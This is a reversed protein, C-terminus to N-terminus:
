RGAAGQQVSRSKAKKNRALEIRLWAMDDAVQQPPQTEGLELAAKARKCAEEIQVKEDESSAFLALVNVAEPGIEVYGGMVVYAATGEQIHVLIEGAGLAAMLRVHGPYIGLQGDVTPLEVLTADGLYVKAEPTVIQLHLTAPPNSM